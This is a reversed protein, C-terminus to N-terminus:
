RIIAIRVLRRPPPRNGINGINRLSLVGGFLRSWMCDTDNKIEKGTQEVCTLTDNKIEKGDAGFYGYRQVLPSELIRWTCRIGHM